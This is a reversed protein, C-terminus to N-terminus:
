PLLLLNYVTTSTTTAFDVMASVKKGNAMATLVVALFEKEHAAPAYFTKTITAPQARGSIWTLATAM